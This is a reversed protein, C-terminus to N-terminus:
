RWIEAVNQSDFSTLADFMGAVLEATSDVHQVDFRATLIEDGERQKQSEQRNWRRSAGLRMPIPRPQLLEISGHLRHDFSHRLADDLDLDRAVTRYVIAITRCGVEDDATLVADARAHDDVRAAEDHGVGV